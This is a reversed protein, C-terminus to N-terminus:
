DGAPLQDILRQVQAREPRDAPIKDLVRQWHDRATDFDGAQVAAEGLYFLATANQPDLALVKRWQQQAAEPLRDDPAAALLADAYALQAKLDDPQAEALHAYADAAKQPENLVQYSRALRRWGDLDDPQDELRAALGAVMNRIMAEREQPAMNKAAEMQESTPGPPTANSASASPAAPSPITAPDIELDDALAAVRRQLEPVWPADAPSSAILGAWADFAGRRDGAQLLALGRYFRARPEAADLALARDFAEKAAPTVMGDEVMVLAEGLAAQLGADEGDLAVARRYADVSQDFRGTLDYARGLRTWAELDDPQDAVRQELQAIMTEVSPLRGQQAEGPQSQGEALQRQEAREAAREAFPRSPLDPRGFQWYLGGALLPLAVLVAIAWRVGGTSSPAARGALADAALMRREVELRAAEAERPDILGRERERALEELQARYVQLEYDRRGAPRRPPRLLPWAVLAAALATMAGLVLWLSV